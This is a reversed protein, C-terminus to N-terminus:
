IPYVKFDTLYYTDDTTSSVPAVQFRVLSASSDIVGDVFFVGDESSVAGEYTNTGDLIKCQIRRTVGSLAVEFRVSKGM